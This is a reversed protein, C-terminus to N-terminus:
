LEGYRLGRRYIFGSRLRCTAADGARRDLAHSHVAASIKPAASMPRKGFYTHTRHRGVFMVISLPIEAPVEEGNEVRRPLGELRDPGHLGSWSWTTSKGLPFNGRLVGILDPHAEHRLVWASTPRSSNNTLTDASVAQETCDEYSLTWQGDFGPAAQQRFQETGGPLPKFFYKSTGQEHVFTAAELSELLGVFTDSIDHGKAYQPALVSEHRTRQLCTARVILKHKSKPNDGVSETSPLLVWDTNQRM